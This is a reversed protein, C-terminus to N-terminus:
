NEIRYKQSDAYSKPAYVLKRSKLVSFKFRKLYYLAGTLCALVTLCQLFTPTPLIHVDPNPLIKSVTDLSVAKEM